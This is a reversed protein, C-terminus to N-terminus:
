IPLCIKKHAFIICLLSVYITKLVGRKCIMGLIGKITMLYSCKTKLLLLSRYNLCPLSYYLDVDCSAGYRLRQFWLLLGMKWHHSSINLALLKRNEVRSKTIPEMAYVGM